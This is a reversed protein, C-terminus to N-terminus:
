FYLDRAEESGNEVAQKLWYKNANYYETCTADNHWQIGTYGKEKKRAMLKRDYARSLLYQADAHNHEAAPTLWRIALDLDATEKPELYIRGLLFQAHSHGGEGAKTLWYLGENKNPRLSGVGYYLLRGLTCQAPLYNQRASETYLLIAQPINDFSERILNQANQYLQTPDRQAKPAPSPKSPGSNPKRFLSIVWAALLVVLVLLVMPVMGAVLLGFIGLEDFVTSWFNALIDQM